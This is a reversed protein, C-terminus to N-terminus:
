LSMRLDLVRQISATFAAHDLTGGTYAGQLGTLASQGQGVSRSSCLILDEGAGAALVSRQATTGFSAIAGAELADTITVGKYGLRGRLENQIVTSSLGAPMTPDLAPYTAWSQMVIGLGANLAAKYPYEDISQLEDLPVNLTVPLSDTNAGYTAAGLGPFHKGASLVGLAQQAYIFDSGCLSVVVPDSSYSRGAADIFNGEERYVDLVPALDVNMGAAKLTAAAAAGTAAATGAPDASAGVEKASQVPEGGLRRVKGGEQDTMLLLPARFPNTLSAAAAELQACVGAIQSTSTMNTSFFIVGAAQGNRILTILADPVTTGPYSYIVRQGALQAPSLKDLPPRAPQLYGFVDFSDVDIGTGSAGAAGTGTWSITVTHSGSALTGSRWVTQKWLSTASYLDVAVAAGGDLSVTAKGYSPGRGAVWDISVGTFSVTVSSLASDASMFSGGSASTTSTVTWTGTYSLHTDGQEFGSPVVAQRVTGQVDFADVSIYKGATNNDDRWIKVEHDGAAITGTEWVKQQYAVAAAALDVNEATGGDLSVWARGLTTGKTAIWALSTGNFDVTVMSGSSNARGYSGASASATTFTAWTGTWGLRTDTQEVLGPRGLVGLIEVADVTIFKGTANGANRVIRVTHAGSALTGTSWVRQQYQATSAALDVTEKLAGDLYVDAKGTTTGKMAIWDLRTGTFTISVTAGASSARGYSGQWAASKAYGEWTGSYTLRPDTQDYRDLYTFDDATTDATAGNSAAVQLRVTGAAHAPAIATIQTASDVTYGAAAVGGFTVASTGSVGTFGTGTIVVSTGGLAPGASPTVAM